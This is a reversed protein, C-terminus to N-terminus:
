QQTSAIIANVLKEQLEVSKALQKALTESLDVMKERYKSESEVATAWKVQKEQRQQKREQGAKVLSATLEEESTKEGEIGSDAVVESEKISKLLTCATDHLKERKNENEAFIVQLETEGEKTRQRKSQPKQIDRTQVTEQVKIACWKLQQVEQCAKEPTYNEVCNKCRLLFM